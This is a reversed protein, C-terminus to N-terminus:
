AGDDVRDLIAYLRTLAQRATHDAARVPVEPVAETDTLQFWRRLRRRRLERWAVRLAIGMVFGSLAPPDRIQSACQLLRVFTEHVQDDIEDGPGLVRMLMRRVHPAFRRWAATGAGPHGTMLARALAEDDLSPL